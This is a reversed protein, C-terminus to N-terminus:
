LTEIRIKRTPEKAFPLADIEALARNVDAELAKHTVIVIPVIRKRGSDKQNVSAISINHQALVMTIHALVGPKDETTFRVYFENSINEISAFRVDEKKRLNTKAGLGVSVIDSIVASSTPAGGAGKGYFLLDGAPYTDLLVSNFALSTESLPHDMAVFAPHVRLDLMGSDKKAIALLKIRYGMAGAYLMDQLAIGAIGETYVREPDPWVGFCLYSLICLKHLTDKGEIDFSPNKEAFGKDQAERLAQHFDIRAKDMQYLIYNTTGNLIGHIKNVDCAVLGESVGKIIPIAGCVSAEFGISKGCQEALGFLEKGKRALLAKNATVVHKGAHLAQTILADAPELGGILEIIIDIEADQILGQADTTFPINLKEVIGAKDKRTDCVGKIKVDLGTRRKILSAQRTLSKVTAEGVVGMGIIGVNTAM